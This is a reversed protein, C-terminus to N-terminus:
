DYKKVKGAAAKAAPRNLNDRERAFRTAIRQLRQQPGTCDETATQPLSATARRALDGSKPRSKAKTCRRLRKL